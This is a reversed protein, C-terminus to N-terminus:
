HRGSCDMEMSMCAAGHQGSMTRERRCKAHGCSPGRWGSIAQAPRNASEGALMRMSRTVDLRNKMYLMRDVKLVNLHLV